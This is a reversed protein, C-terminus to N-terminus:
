SVPTTANTLAKDPMLYADGKHEANFKETTQTYATTDHMNQEELAMMTPKMYEAANVLGDINWDKAKVQAFSRHHRHPMGLPRNLTVANAGVLLLVAFSTKM